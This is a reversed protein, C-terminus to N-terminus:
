GPFYRPFVSVASWVFLAILIVSFYVAPFAHKLTFPTIECEPSGPLFDYYTDIRKRTEEEIMAEINETKEKL